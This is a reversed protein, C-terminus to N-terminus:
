PSEWTAPVRSIIAPWSAWVVRISRCAKTCGSSRRSIPWRGHGCSRPPVSGWSETDKLYESLRRFAYDIRADVAMEAARRELQEAPLRELFEVPNHDVKRWLAPDLERFLTIVNPQWTWWLNRALERLKDVLQTQGVLTVGGDRTTGRCDPRLWSPPRSWVGSRAGVFPKNPSLKFWFFCLIDSSWYFALDSTKESM